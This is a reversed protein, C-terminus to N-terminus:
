RSDCTHIHIHSDLISSHVDGKDDAWNYMLITKPEKSMCRFTKLGDRPQLARNEISGQALHRALMCFPVPPFPHPSVLSRPSFGSGHHRSSGGTTRGAHMGVTAKRHEREQRESATWGKLGAEPETRLFGELREPRGCYPSSGVTYFYIILAKRQQDENHKRGALDTRM